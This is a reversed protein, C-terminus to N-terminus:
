VLQDVLGATPALVWRLDDVSATSYFLKLGGAVAIVAALQLVNRRPVSPRM